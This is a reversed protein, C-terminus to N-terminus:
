NEGKYFHHWFWLYTDIYGVLKVRLAGFYYINFNVDAFCSNRRAQWHMKAFCLLICGVEIFTLAMGPSVFRNVGAINCRSNLPKPGPWTVCDTPCGVRLDSARPEIGLRAVYKRKEKRQKM